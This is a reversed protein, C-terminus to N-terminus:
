SNQRGLQEGVSCFYKNMSEATLDPKTITKDDVRLSTIITTKSRKNILKNIITLTEKVNEECSLIKDTFHRKKLKTNLANAKSRIRKYAEMLLVSISNIAAAKLRDQTRFM